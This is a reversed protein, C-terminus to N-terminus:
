IQEPAIVFSQDLSDHPSSNLEHQAQVGELVAVLQTSANANLADRLALGGCVSGVVGFIAAVIPEENMYGGASAVGSLGVRALNISACIRHETAIDLAEEIREKINLKTSHEAQRNSM